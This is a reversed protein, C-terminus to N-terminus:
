RDHLWKALGTRRKVLIYRLSFATPFRVWDDSKFELTPKLDLSIVLPLIPIKYEAGILGDLGYFPGSDKNRGIHGGAGFYYNLSPGLIGFHQQALVTASWERESALAIAEVTTNNVIRQQLTLGYGNGAFRLGLATSYKQAHASPPRALLLLLGAALSIRFALMTQPLNAPDSGGFRVFRASIKPATGRKPAGGRVECWWMSLRLRM